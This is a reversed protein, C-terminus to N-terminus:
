NANKGNTVGEINEILNKIESPQKIEGKELKLFLDSYKNKFEKKIIEKILIVLLYIYRITNTNKVKIDIFANIETKNNDYFVKADNKIEQKKKPNNIYDGVMSM